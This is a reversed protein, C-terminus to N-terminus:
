QGKDVGAVYIICVGCMKGLVAKYKLYQPKKVNQGYEIFTVPLVQLHTVANFFIHTLIM